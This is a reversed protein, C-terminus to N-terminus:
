VGHVLFDHLPMVTAGKGTSENPHPNKYRATIGDLAGRARDPSVDPRPPGAAQLFHLDHRLQQAPPMSTLLPMWVDVERSPFALTAAILGVMQNPQQTM